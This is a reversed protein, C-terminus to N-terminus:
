GAGSPRAASAPCCRGTSSATTASAAAPADAAAARRRPRGPRGRRDARVAAAVRGRAARLPGRGGPRHAVDDPECGVINTTLHVTPDEALAVNAIVYPPEFGPLWQHQNVTFGVVTARGSVETPAWSRSRCVPCIPVPPHVLAECDDCGQIRLRGDAGSTWFWENVPTLQPLPRVPRDSSTARLLRGRGPAPEFAGTMGAAFYGADTVMTIGTVGAAADSCLFVLPYAQELPTSAEIGAEDRYDAGFGLWM